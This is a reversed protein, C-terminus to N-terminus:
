RLRAVYRAVGHDFWTRSFEASAGDQAWGIRRMTMFDRGISFQDAGEIPLNDIGISLKPDPLEAAVGQLAASAEVARNRAALAPAESEALKLAADFTLAVSEHSQLAIAAGVSLSLICLWRAPRSACRCKSVAFPGVM